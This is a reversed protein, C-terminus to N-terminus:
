ITLDGWIHKSYEQDVHMVKKRLYRRIDSDIKDVTYGPAKNGDLLIDKITDVLQAYADKSFYLLTNKHEKLYRAYEKQTANNLADQLRSIYIQMDQYRDIDEGQHKQLLAIRDAITSLHKDLYNEVYQKDPVDQLIDFIQTRALRQVVEVPIDQMGDLYQDLEELINKESQTM